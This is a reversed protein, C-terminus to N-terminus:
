FEKGKGFYLKMQLALREQLVDLEESFGKKKSARRCYGLLDFAIKIAKEGVREFEPM